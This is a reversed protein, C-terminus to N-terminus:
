ARTRLFDEIAARDPLSAFAGSGSAAIAGTAGAMRLAARDDNGEVWAALLGGLFADGAGVSDVVTIPFAERSLLKGGRALVAGCSGCTIVAVAIDFRAGLTTAAAGAAPLDPMPLAVLQSAEHRNVILIDTLELVSDLAGEDYHPLPSANLVTTAGSRRAIRFAAQVIESGIELQCVVFISREFAPSARELDAISLRGAAGPVIISAYEGGIAFVTSAGTAADPSRTLHTLDIGTNGLDGAIRAGMADSGIKGVLWTPVGLRALQTAQNGAKGGPSQAFGTGVVSAGLSPMEAATAILDMHVSGAVTVGSRNTM